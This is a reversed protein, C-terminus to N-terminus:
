SGGQRGLARAIRLTRRVATIGAGVIVVLLLLEPLSEGWLTPQWREPALAMWLALVTALFMRQQKAMPGSFDSGAGSAKGVARVYATAIAALAAATGLGWNGAAIGIGALVASDSIRDPIENYLEGLRSATGGAIAVMGDLMNAVLRLQVLLAGALWLIWAGRGASATAALIAGAACGCLLGCISVANASIGRRLLWRAAAQALPHERAAIPRRDTTESM